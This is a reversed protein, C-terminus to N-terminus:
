SPLPSSTPVVTHREICCVLITPQVKFLVAPVATCVGGGGARLTITSYGRGWGKLGKEAHLVSVTAFAMCCALSKISSLGRTEIPLM